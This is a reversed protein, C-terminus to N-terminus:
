RRGRPTHTLLFSSELHFWSELWPMQNHCLHGMYWRLRHTHTHWIDPGTIDECKDCCPGLASRPLRWEQQLENRPLALVALVAGRPVIGMGSKRKTELERRLQSCQRPSTSQHALQQQSLTSNMQEQFTLIQYQIWYFIQKSITSCGYSNPALVLNSLNNLLPFKLFSNKLQKSM